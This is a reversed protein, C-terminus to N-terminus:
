SGNRGHFKGLNEWNSNIEWERRYHKSLVVRTNGLSGILLVLNNKFKWNIVPCYTDEQRHGTSLDRGTFNAYRIQDSGWEILWTWKIVCKLLAATDLATFSDSCNSAIETSTSNSILITWSTSSTWLGCKLYSQGLSYARRPCPGPRAKKMMIIRAGPMAQWMTLVSIGGLLIM